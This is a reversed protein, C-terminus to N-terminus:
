RVIASDDLLLVDIVEGPQFKRDGAPFLALANASSLGRLDASGHWEVPTVSGRGKADASAGEHVAPFYTPRDGRQRHEATLEAQRQALGVPPLGALQQIAPRVFLEFCVFTSVPNGPLGFVLTPPKGANAAASDPGVGFWLPKGPKMRVKHFVERAGQETLVSPVLDMVGASVGGSLLLVDAALGQRIREAMAEPDDRAVGLMVPTAGAQTVAAALMPSNSNRIQGPAPTESAAVLENGTALIAVQPRPVTQVVARGIEALLAIELPRIRAGARLVINGARMAEGRRLINRGARIETDHISVRGLSAGAPSPGRGPTVAGGQGVIETREVMVVCDAGAPIPAGTMVRVAAGSVVQKQPVSGAVVEEIIELQAAGQKLDDTLIAYGDVISKDYPPSDVESTITEDLVRGLAEDLETACSPLRAARSLVLSLATQVDIM